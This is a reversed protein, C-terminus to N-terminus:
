LTVVSCLYRKNKWCKCEVILTFEKFVAPSADNNKASCRYTGEDDFDINRIIIELGHSSHAEAHDSLEADVRTWTVDPTPSFSSM